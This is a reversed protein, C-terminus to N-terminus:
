RWAGRVEILAEATITRGAGEDGSLNGTTAKVSAAEVPLGLLTAVAERMRELRAAGLRPRAGIITLDVSSPHWGSIIARELAAGVLDRSDIGRTAPDGAPFLRGLDGQGAAALLADCVAHLAVDGDSHGHLRPAEPIEVGALRLGEGSGFPHSDRGVGHRAQTGRTEALARVLDLDGPETVKINRADGPVAVTPVGVRALAEAEDGLLEDSTAAAEVARRLPERRAGQPTQARHLGSREAAELYGNSDLHKLSDVVPVVPIAAGHERAAAAVLDTLASTALPRAGDHVLVVEAETV